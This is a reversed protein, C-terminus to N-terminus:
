INISTIGTNAKSESIHFVFMGVCGIVLIVTIVILGSQWTAWPDRRNTGKSGSASGHRFSTRQSPPPSDDEDLDPLAYNEDDYRSRRKSTSKPQETNSADNVENQSSINANTQEEEDEEGIPAYEEDNYTETLEM